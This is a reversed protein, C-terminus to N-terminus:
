KEDTGVSREIPHRDDAAVFYGHLLFNLTYRKADDNFMTFQHMAPVLIFDRAGVLKTTEVQLLGDNDGEMLPNYGRDKGRGGAIIGFECPPVALTKEVEPWGAGLESASSGLLMAILEHDELMLAASAGHNPPALMVFRKIRAESVRGTAPDTNDYLWRRIILNGLSHGVFNIEEVGELHKMVLGLTRAHEALDGRTSPVAVNFVTFPGNKELYDALPQMTRRWGALGHVMVVARGKMAPLHRERKIEDLKQQCYDFSGRAYRKDNGDLLRCHGTLVNRQIRWHGFCLEDAWLQVGGLTQTRWSALPGRFFLGAEPPVGETGEEASKPSPAPSSKEPRIKEPEIAVAVAAFFLAIFSSFVIRDLQRRM